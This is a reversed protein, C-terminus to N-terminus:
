NLTPNLAPGLSGLRELMALVLFSDPLYLLLRELPEM